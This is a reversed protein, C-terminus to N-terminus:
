GIVGLDEFRQFHLMDALGIKCKTANRAKVVALELMGEVEPPRYILIALSATNLLESTGRTRMTLEGDTSKEIDIQTPLIVVISLELCLQNLLRVFNAKSQWTSGDSSASAEMLNLYDLVFLEVGNVEKHQRILSSIENPSFVDDYIFIDPTDPSALQRRGDDLKDKTAKDLPKRIDKPLLDELIVSLPVECLNALLRAELLKAPLELSFYVSSRGKKWNHIVEQASFASKGVGSPAGVITVGCLRAGRSNLSPLSSPLMFINNDIDEGLRTVRRQTTSSVAKQLEKTKSALLELDKSLAAEAIESVNGEVLTLAHTTKLNSVVEDVSVETDIARVTKLYAESKLYESNGLTAKLIALLDSDTLSEGRKVAKSYTRTIQLALPNEFWNLDIKNPSINGNLLHYLLLKEM